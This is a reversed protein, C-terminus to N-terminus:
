THGIGGARVNTASQKSERLGAGAAEVAELANWTRDESALSINEHGERRRRLRASEGLDSNQLLLRGVGTQRTWFTLLSPGM